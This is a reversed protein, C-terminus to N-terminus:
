LGVKRQIEYSQNGEVEELHISTSIGEKEDQLHESYILPKGDEVDRIDHRHDFLSILLFHVVYNLIM